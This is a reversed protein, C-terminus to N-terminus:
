IEGGDISITDSSNFTSSSSLQGSIEKVPRPIISTEFITNKESLVDRSIKVATEIEELKGTFIVLGKGGLDDAMRIEVISIDAGKIASDAAKIVSPVSLTEITAISESACKERKGFVADYVSIHVDPLFISDSISDGGATKGNRYAEEVSAVSGGILILYKGNHVSGSRVMAVPSHKLMADGTFIGRAVSKLEFVAISSHKNKM